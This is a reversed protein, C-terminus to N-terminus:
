ESDDTDFGCSDDEPHVMIETADVTLGMQHPQLWVSRVEVIVAM